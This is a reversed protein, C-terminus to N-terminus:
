FGQALRHCAPKSRIEITLGRSTAGDTLTISALTTDSLTPATADTCIDTSVASGRMTDHTVDAHPQMPMM